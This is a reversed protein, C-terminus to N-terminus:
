FNEVVALFLADADKCRGQKQFLDVNSFAVLASRIRSAPLRKANKVTMKAAYPSGGLKKAAAEDSLGASLYEKAAYIQRLRGELFAALGMASEGTKLMGMLQALAAKKNGVILLDLLAFIKYETNPTVCARLHQETVPLGYGAYAGAKLIANELTYLDTGAMMVLARATFKDISIRNEAARKLVFTTAMADDYPEFNVARGQKFLADQLKNGRASEGRALFILATTPPVQDLYSVLAENESAPVEEAIVARHADFFPLAESAAIVSQASPAKLKQVNMDLVAPNLSSKVRQLAREKAYEEPGYFYYPGSAPAKSLANFFSLDSRAAYDAM